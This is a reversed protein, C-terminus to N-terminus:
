FLLSAQQPIVVYTTMSLMVCLSFPEVRYLVILFYIKVSQKCEKQVGLVDGLGTGWGWGARKEPTASTKAIRLVPYLYAVYM